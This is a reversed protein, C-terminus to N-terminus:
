GPSGTGATPRTARAVLGTGAHPWARQLRRFPLTAVQTVRGAAVSEPQLLRASGGTREAMSAQSAARLRRRGIAHRARELLFGLPAGYAVIEVDVLGAERLRASLVAPEYRRYHGAIEDWAGFRREFAPVSLVLVGGPVLRDVWARLAAADDELHELVEFACVTDFREEDRLATLDGNRVEGRGIEALRRVAVAASDADPELGLYEGRLALRVGVAGLGCGVELVRGLPAPLLRDVVDYRLWAHAGLSPLATM